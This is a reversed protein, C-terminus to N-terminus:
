NPRARRAIQHLEWQHVENEMLNQHTSSPKSQCLKVPPRISCQVHLLNSFEKVRKRKWVQRHMLFRVISSKRKLMLINEQPWPIWKHSFWSLKVPLIFKSAKFKRITSLSQIGNICNKKEFCCETLMSLKGKNDVSIESRKM